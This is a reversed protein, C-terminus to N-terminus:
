CGLRQYAAIEDPTWRPFRAVRRYNFLYERTLVLREWATFGRM